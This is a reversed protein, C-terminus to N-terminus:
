AAEEDKRDLDEVTHLAEIGDQKTEILPSPSTELGTTATGPVPAQVSADGKSGPMLSGPIPLVPTYRSNTLGEDWAPTAGPEGLLADRGARCDADAADLQTRLLEARQRLRYASTDEDAWLGQEARIQELYHTEIAVAIADAEADILPNLFPGTADDIGEKHSHVRNVIDIAYDALTPVTIRDLHPISRWYRSHSPDAPEGGFHEFGPTPPKSVPRKGGFLAAVKSFISM